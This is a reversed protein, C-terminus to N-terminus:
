SKKAEDVEEKQRRLKEETDIDIESIKRKRDEFIKRRNEENQDDREDQERLKDADSV